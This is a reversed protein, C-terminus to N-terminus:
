VIFHGSQYFTDDRLVYVTETWACLFDWPMDVMCICMFECSSTFQYYVCHISHLREYQGRFWAIRYKLHLHKVSIYLIPHVLVLIFPLKICIHKRLYKQVFNWCTCASLGTLPLAYCYVEGSNFMTSFQPYQFALIIRGQSLCPLNYKGRVKVHMEVYSNYSIGSGLAETM